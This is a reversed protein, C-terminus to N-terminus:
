LPCQRLVPRRWSNNGNPMTDHMSNWVTVGDTYFLLNGNYDSISACGEYQNIQGDFVAQPSGDPTNFTIGANNGFYWNNAQKNQAYLVSTWFFSSVILLLLYKWCLMFCFYPKIRIIRLAM